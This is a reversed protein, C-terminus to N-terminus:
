RSPRRSGRVLSRWHAVLEHAVQRADYREAVRRHAADALREALAPDGALSRLAEAWAGVDDPAVLVGADGVVERLAPVDSAIVPRGLAMAELVANSQGEWRSAQAVVDANALLPRVDVHPGALVVRDDVGLAAAEARLATEEPGEGVIALRADVGGARLSAIARILTDHGKQPVLRGVSVVELAGSRAPLPSRAFRDLQVGRPIVVLRDAVRAGLARRASTAVAESIAILSRDRPASLADVRQLTASRWRRQDGARRVVPEWPTNVLHSTRPSRVPAARSVLSADLLAADIVDPRWRRVLRALRWAGIALSRPSRTPATSLGLDARGVGLADLSRAVTEEAPRRDGRLTVVLHTAVEEPVEAALVEIAREAGGVGLDPLVHVVRLAGRGAISRVMAAYRGAVVETTRAESLERGADALEARRAPDALLSLVADGVETARRGPVVVGASGADLLVEIGDSAVAVVPCRALHAEIIVGPTSDSLATTVLVDAAVLLEVV